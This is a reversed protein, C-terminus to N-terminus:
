MPSQKEAHLGPSVAQPRKHALRVLLLNLQPLHPFRQAAPSMQM